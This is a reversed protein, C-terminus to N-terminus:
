LQLTKKVFPISIAQKSQLSLKDLDNIVSLLVKLDRSYNKFLYKYVKSDITLNRESMQNNLVVMTSDDDLIDLKFVLALSLRTKMDKMINLNSPLCNGSVVITINKSQRARNYFDFFLDQNTNNIFNINDISILKFEDVSDLIHEPFLDNCDIYIANEGDNLASIVAGQLLHTKGLGEEGYVYIESAENNDSLSNIYNLLESNGIFNDLLMKSNLSIPLGLQNM